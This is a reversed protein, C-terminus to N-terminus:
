SLCCFIVMPQPLFFISRGPNGLLQPALSSRISFSAVHYNNVLTLEGKANSLVPMAFFWFM